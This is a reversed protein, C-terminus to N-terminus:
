YPQELPASISSLDLELKEAHTPRILNDVLATMEDDVCPACAGLRILDEKIVEQRGTNVGNIHGQTYALYAVVAIALSCLIYPWM